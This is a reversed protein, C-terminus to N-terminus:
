EWDGRSYEINFTDLFSSVRGKAQEPLATIDGCVGVPIDLENRFVGGLKQVLPSYTTEAIVLNNEPDVRFAVSKETTLREIIGNSTVDVDLTQYFYVGSFTGDDHSTYRFGSGDGESVKNAELKSEILEADIDKNLIDFYSEALEDVGSEIIEKSTLAFDRVKEEDWEKSIYMKEVEQWKSFEEVEGTFQKHIRNMTNLTGNPRIYEGIVERVQVVEEDM